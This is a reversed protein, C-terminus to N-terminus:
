KKDEKMDAFWSRGHQKKYLRLAEGFASGPLVRAYNREDGSPYRPPMADRLKLVEEKTIM